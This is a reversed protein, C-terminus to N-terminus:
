PGFLLYFIRQLLNEMVSDLTTDECREDVVAYPGRRLNKPFVDKSLHCKVPFFPSNHSGADQDLVFRALDCGNVDIGGWNSSFDQCSECDEFLDQLLM